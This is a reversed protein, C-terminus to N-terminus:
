RHFVFLSSTPSSSLGLCEPSVFWSSHLPGSSYRSPGAVRDRKLSWKALTRPGDHWKPNTADDHCITHQLVCHGATGKTLITWVAQRVRGSAAVARVPPLRLTSFWKNDIVYHHFLGTWSPKTGPARQMNFATWVLTLLRRPQNETTISLTVCRILLLAKLAHGNNYM